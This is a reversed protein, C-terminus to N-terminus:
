SSQNKTPRGVLIVREKSSPIKAFPLWAWGRERSTREADKEGLWLVFQGDPRLARRAWPLLAEFQGIARCTLYDAAFEEARLEEFRANRVDIQALGLQQVVEKLFACKRRNSEVLTVSLGPVVLKIPISPFGGGSGIDVLKGATIPVARVAFFAEGLHRELIAEPERIATLSIKENWRALLELYRRVVAATEPYPALRDRALRAAIEDASPIRLAIRKGRM